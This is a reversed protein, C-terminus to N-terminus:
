PARSPGAGDLADRARGWEAGVAGLLAGAGELSGQRAMAELGRCHEALAQAGFTAANSKLTHAARQAESADGQEIAGHLAALQAPADELFADILERVIGWGDDGGGLSAALADLATGDVADGPADLVRGTRSLAGALQDVRIPKAVYDDMGAALCAERDGPMANATMAIIAPGEGRGRRARIQRTAELGDLVPMQVDMLVVDYPRRELADLAELGNTVVDARHGLKALLAVALQRNVANDEAVLIGLASSASQAGDASTATRQAPLEAAFLGVLADHLYSAKVPKTLQASFETAGRTQALRGIPTLLMLPLTREDRHRRIERALAVGDMEHVQMDLLAVDFPDGRRIRVLAESPLAVGVVQLGWSEAQRRVIERSTANHAVVLLRKGALLPEDM